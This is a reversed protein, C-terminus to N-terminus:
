GPRRRTPGHRRRRHRLVVVAMVTGLASHIWGLAPRISEPAFYYLAYGSAAVLAALVCLTIGSGRQHAWRHRAVLRWGQPVHGAALVGFIFLGGFAALGHLRILWAEAPHPLAEAGSAGAGIAYHLALWAIGSALALVGTTILLSHQWGPLRHLSRTM